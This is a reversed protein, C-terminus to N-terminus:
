RLPVTFKFIVNFRATFQVFANRPFALKMLGASSARRMRVVLSAVVEIKFSLGGISSLPAEESSEAEVQPYCHPPQVLAAGPGFYRRM